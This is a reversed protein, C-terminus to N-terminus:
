DSQVVSDQYATPLIKIGYTPFNQLPFIQGIQHIQWIKYIYICHFLQYVQWCIRWNKRVLQKMLLSESFIDGELIKGTYSICYFLIISKIIFEQLQYYRTSIICVISVKKDRM